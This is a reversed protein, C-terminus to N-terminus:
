SARDIIPPAIARQRYATKQARNIILCLSFARGAVTQAKITQSIQAKPAQPKTKLHYRHCYTEVKGSQSASFPVLVCHPENKTACDRDDCSHKRLSETWCNSAKEKSKRGDEWGAGSQDLSIFVVPLSSRPNDPGSPAPLRGRKVSSTCDHSAYSKGTKCHHNPFEQRDPISRQDKEYRKGYPQCNGDQDPLKTLTPPADKPQLL